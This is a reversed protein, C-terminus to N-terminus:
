RAPAREPVPPSAPWPQVLSGRNRPMDQAVAEITIPTDKGIPTLVEYEWPGHATEVAPGSELVAGTPDRLTVDVMIVATDDEANVTIIDGPNGAYKSCDIKLVKPPLFFDRTTLASLPKSTQEMEASYRSSLEPDEKVRLYYAIGVRFRDQHERQKESPVINGMQPVRTMVRGYKYRKVIVEGVRGIVPNLIASIDIRAM